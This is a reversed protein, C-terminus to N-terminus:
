RADSGLADCAVPWYGQTKADACAMCANGFTRQETSDCPTTICRVGTDVVGCVPRYEKTCVPSRHEADCTTFAMRGGAVPAGEGEEKSDQEAEVAQESAGTNDTPGTNDSPTTPDTPSQDVSAQSQSGGCAMLVCVLCPWMSRM